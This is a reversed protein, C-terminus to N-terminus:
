PKSSKAHIHKMLGTWESFDGRLMNGCYKKLLNARQELEVPINQVFEEKNVMKVEYHLSPDLYECITTVGIKRPIINIRLLKRAEEGIPELNTVLTAHEIFISLQIKPAGAIYDYDGKKNISFGYDDILFSYNKYLMGEFLSSDILKTL